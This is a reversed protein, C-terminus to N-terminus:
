KVKVAPVSFRRGDELRYATLARGWVCGTDLAECRPHVSRGELAAWHGFLVRQPLQYWDYWPRFLGPDVPQATKNILDLTGDAACFRMRTLANVTYRIRDAAAFEDHWHVPRHRHIELDRLANLYDEGRLCEAAKEAHGLLASLTWQPPIGAHVLLTDFDPLYIVLAQRRLWDLLELKDPAQLVQELTHEGQYTILGYGIVLLYLDHNGLVVWPEPLNKIFRLVALSDPGRNVLDGVFGLRDRQPNFDVQELLQQLETYCGQVDGIVYSAMINGSFFSYDVLDNEKFWYDRTLINQLICDHNLSHCIKQNQRPKGAKGARAPHIRSNILRLRRWVDHIARGDFFQSFVQVAVGPRRGRAPFTVIDRKHVFYCIEGAGLPAARIYPM